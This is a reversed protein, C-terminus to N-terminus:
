FARPFTPRTHDSRADPFPEERGMPITGGRVPLGRKPAVMDENCSDVDGVVCVTRTARAFVPIARGGVFSTSVYDGVFRGGADPLWELRMPGALRVPESWHQGRDASSVFGQFLRCTELTCNDTPFYSYTLALRTRRVSRTPDVGLGPTFHDVTSGVSDIPVRTVESWNRGDKSNSMVIDNSTCGERFRCDQWVVYIRGRADIEASPIAPARMFPVARDNTTAIFYPGDYTEGGDESVLAQVNNLNGSYPVVVTGDPQALPLGGLGTAPAVDAETWTRGGDTSTFMAMRNGASTDDAQIYCNGYYPSDPWNDCAIWNKDYSTKGEPSAIV